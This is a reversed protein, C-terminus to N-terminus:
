VGLGAPVGILGCLLRTFVQNIRVQLIRVFINMGFRPFGALMLVLGYVRIVRPFDNSWPVGLPQRGIDKGHPM